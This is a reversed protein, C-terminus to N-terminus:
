LVNLKSLLHEDFFQGNKCSARKMVGDLTYGNKELVCISAKNQAVVSVFLRTFDLAEFLYQTFERVAQTAIGQNWHPEGVWYGLEASRSYEFEGQTASICGVLNGNFEIANIYESEATNEVWWIADELTYPQPIASTVFQTVSPNNLYSVLLDTDSRKFQRLKIM